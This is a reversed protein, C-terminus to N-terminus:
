LHPVGASALALNIISVVGEGLILGSALIVVTSGGGSSDDDGSRGRPAGVTDEHADDDKIASTLGAADDDGALLRARSDDDVVGSRLSSFSWWWWWRQRRQQQRKRRGWWWAIVGGIARALTFSPVNYMGVAVAIGGPIWARWPASRARGGGGGKGPSFAPSAGMIRLVTIVSFVAGAITATQWAMEPLGQGTVLRATFIWVYATPVQFMPSPVDYVAIYLKYVAASIVAGFLSGIVQGYFQARPSAGLLHGTKLDQMMDGAQLAGAESVAGALLNTVVATRRTHSSAPTALAFILQTLKSIGSVPNLDTEGLARVGMVSLFLALLTALASLAPTILNGFSIHMCIVNLFLTLPLLLLVTRTSILESPPADGDNDVAYPLHIATYSPRRSAPKFVDTWFNNRTMNHLLTPGHTILPRLVLWGLNIISDALMIALSVWVIWAKSGDEWSDVPGPAWGRHKALPSLIGWGLIAGVLMHLSTSPGMIIGQGIYAPSPNLTWLWHTALPLGFIPLDRLRPIFFSALTYTASVGFAYILLKINAQWDKRRDREALALRSISHSTDEREDRAPLAVREREHVSNSRSMRRRRQESSIGVAKGKQEAQGGGHLVRIMLATATGSPFKLKERVIVEKRLPVAFVVGFLCVGLSWVVLKGFSLKLPGGEGQGDDAGREGDPGDRLLFEMSPIVGVFGCGLPMSGVAGAVTQILVNEVPTFPFSLHRSLAKFAAFGILSSPMAMTSIWGTQLGFYTNSFTILTGIVLGMLLSRITFSQASTRSSRLREESSDDPFRSDHQIDGHHDGYEHNSDQDSHTEENHISFTLGPSQSQRVPYSHSELGDRNALSPGTGVM